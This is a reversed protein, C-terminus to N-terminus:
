DRIHGIKEEIMEKTIPGKRVISPPTKTMDIITSALGIETQGGDLILDVYEGIQTLVDIPSIPNVDGHANASTGVLPLSSFRMIALPVPHNPVRLAIGPNGGTIQFPVIPKKNLIITLAGPWFTKALRKANETIFAFKESMELGSVILPLAQNTPRRKAKFVRAIAYPNLANAGLGYLTDTPYAVLGGSELISIARKIKKFEPKKPNIVILEPM